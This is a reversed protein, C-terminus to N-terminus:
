GKLKKHRSSTGAKETAFNDQYAETQTRQRLSNNHGYFTKLSSPSAQRQRKKKVAM